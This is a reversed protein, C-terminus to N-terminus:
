AAKKVLSLAGGVGILAAGSLRERWVAMPGTAMLKRGQVATISYAALIPVEIIVGTAALILLQLPLDGARYDVFQPFLASYFLISKPNALQNILGQSFPHRWLSVREAHTDAAARAANKITRLGLFVLYAAGAYKIVLFATESTVLVAGLGIASLAFYIMNGVQVGGTVAMGAKFGRAMAQSMTLLVAPGPTIAFTLYLAAYALWTTFSM